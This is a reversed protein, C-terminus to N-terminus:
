NRVPRLWSYGVASSSMLTEREVVLGDRERGEGRAGRDPSGREAQFRRNVEISTPEVPRALASLGAAPIDRPSVFGSNRAASGEGATTAELVVIEASPDLEALRRAAALGTYGAGVVAYKVAIQGTAPPRPTRPPLLATWGCQDPYDPFPSSSM